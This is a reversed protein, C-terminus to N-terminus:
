PLKTAAALVRRRYPMHELTLTVEMLLPTVAEETMEELLQAHSAQVSEYTEVLRGHWSETEEYVEVRFVMEELLPRFDDVPDASIVPLGAVRSSDLEFATFAFRGGASLIRRVEQFAARKEPAYQFADVSMAGEVSGSELGTDDFAGIAFRATGTLGLKEAREMANAVAVPSLDIGILHAGVERAIWLGPGGEGCGLDALTSGAEIRLESALRALEALTLFSINEFGEPYGPGQAHQRWIARLTPSRSLARYVADYGTRVIERDM